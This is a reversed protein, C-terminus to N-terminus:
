EQLNPGQVGLNSSTGNNTTPASLQIMADDTATASQAAVRNPLLLLTAALVALWLIKTYSGIASKFVKTGRTQMTIMIMAREEAFQFGPSGNSGHAFKALM